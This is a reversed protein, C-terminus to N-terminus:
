GDVQSHRRKKAKLEDMARMLLACDKDSLENMSKRLANKRSRSILWPFERFSLLVSLPADVSLMAPGM